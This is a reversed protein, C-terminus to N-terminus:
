SWLLFSDAMVKFRIYLFIQEICIREVKILHWKSQMLVFMSFTSNFQDHFLIQHESPLPALFLGVSGFDWEFTPPGFYPEIPGM